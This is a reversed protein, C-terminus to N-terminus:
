IGDPAPTRAHPPGGERLRPHLSRRKALGELKYDSFWLPPWKARFEERREAYREPAVLTRFRTGTDAAHGEKADAYGADMIAVASDFDLMNVDVARRVTVSRRPLDYDTDHMALM